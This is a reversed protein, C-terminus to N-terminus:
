MALADDYKRAKDVVIKSEIYSVVALTVVLVMLFADLEFDKNKFVYISLMFTAIVSAAEGINKLVSDLIALLYMTLWSKVIFSVLVLGSNGDFGELPGEGTWTEGDFLTYVIVMLLWAVKFQVLQVYIPEDQFEKMYKDSLVACLCSVVVKCVVFSIGVLYEADIGGEDAQKANMMQVYKEVTMKNYKPDIKDAEKGGAVSYVSMAVMVVALIIWQLRSTKTGKFFRMMVATILLKSQLLVQYADGSVKSTALVELIDGWAYVLGIISFVKMPIPNWISKWQQVGGIWLAMIQGMLMTFICEGIVPVMKAYPAVLKQKGDVIQWEKANEIFSPHFARSAIFFVFLLMEVFASVEYPPPKRPSNGEPRLISKTSTVTEITVQRASARTEEMMGVEFSRGDPM